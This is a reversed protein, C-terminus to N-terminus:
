VQWDGTHMISELIVIVPCLPASSQFNIRTSLTKSKYIWTFFCIFWACVPKKTTLSFNYSRDTVTNIYWNACLTKGAALSCNLVWIVLFFYACSFVSNCSITDIIWYDTVFSSVAAQIRKLQSSMIVTKVFFSFSFVKNGYIPYGYNCIMEPLFLLDSPYTTRYIQPNECCHNDIEYM